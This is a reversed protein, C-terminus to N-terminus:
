WYYLPDRGERTALADWRGHVIHARARHRDRRRRERSEESVVRPRSFREWPFRQRFNDPDWGDPYDVRFPKHAETRAM